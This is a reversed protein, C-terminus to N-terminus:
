RPLLWVYLAPLDRCPTQGPIDDARWTRFGPSRVVVSFTKEFGGNKRMRVILASDDPAAQATASDRYADATLQVTAGNPPARGSLVDRVIVTVSRSPGCYIQPPRQALALAIAYGRSADVRVHLQQIRYGIRGAQITFSDFPAFSFQFRGLRDTEAGIGRGERHRDVISVFVSQIGQGTSDDVVVGRITGPAASDTPFPGVTVVASPRPAPKVPASVAHRACAALLAFAAIGITARRIQWVSPSSM